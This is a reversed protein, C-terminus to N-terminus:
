FFSILVSIDNINKNIFCFVLFLTVRKNEVHISQGVPPQVHAAFPFDIVTKGERGNVYIYTMLQTVSRGVVYTYTM